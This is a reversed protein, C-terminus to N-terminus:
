SDVESIAIFATDPFRKQGTGQILIAEISLQGGEADFGVNIARVELPNVLFGSYGPEGFVFDQQVLGIVNYIPRDLLLFVEHDVKRSGDM